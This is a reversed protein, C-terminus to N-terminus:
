INFEDDDDALVENKFNGVFFLLSNVMYKYQM